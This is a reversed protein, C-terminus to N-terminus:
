RTGKRYISKLSFLKARTNIIPSTIKNSGNMIFIAIRIIFVYLNSLHIPLWKIIKAIGFILFVLILLFIILDFLLPLIVVVASINGWHFITQANRGSVLIVGVILGLTVLVFVFLPLYIQILQEKKYSKSINETKTKAKM